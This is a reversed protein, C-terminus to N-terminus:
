FRETSPIAPGLAIPWVRSELQLYILILRSFVTVYLTICMVPAASKHSSSAAFSAEAEKKTTFSSLLTGDLLIRLHVVIVATDGVPFFNDVDVSNMDNVIALAVLDSTILLAQFGLFRLSLHVHKCNM